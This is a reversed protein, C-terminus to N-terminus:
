TIELLRFHFPYVLEGKDFSDIFRQCNKTLQYKSERNYIDKGGVETRNRFCRNIALAIPCSYCDGSIGKNIDEWTVNIIM